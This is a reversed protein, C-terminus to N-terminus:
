VLSSGGTIIKGGIYGAIERTRDSPNVQEWQIAPLGGQRRVANMIAPHAYISGPIYLPIPPTNIFSGDKWILWVFGKNISSRIKTFRGTVGVDFFGTEFERNHLLWAYALIEHAFLDESSIFLGTEPHTVHGNDPGFTSLVRTGSSVTLRLRSRIAPIRNIEEYLSYFDDGGCHFVRRSDERLFGVGIKMGSTIDGMVHSSVRALYVIHDAENVVNTVYVPEKWHHPGEPEMPLYSDYGREEFFVGEAGSEEIVKLLGAKRCNERSSGRNKEKTWHVSEVGSSDGVLIKGAGKEKLLTIMAFLSFPDTTAPFPNASNLALKIFVSDGKSLWAFDTSAEVTKKFLTYAQDKEGKPIYASAGHPKWNEARGMAAIEKEGTEIRHACAPLVMSAATIGGLKLLDRRSVLGGTEMSRDM